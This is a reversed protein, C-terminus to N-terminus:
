FQTEIDPCAIWRGIRVILGRAMWPYYVDLYVETPDYGYLSNHKLLQYSLWGGATMYRYDIGYLNSFRFGWDMHDTQVSELQREFRLVLQDVELRNPAIWYSTPTNSNHANSWNYSGNLWGYVQIRNSDLLDGPWTGQLFKMLPYRTTNIPVGILPYGQYETGP